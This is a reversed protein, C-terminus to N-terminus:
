ACGGRRASTRTRRASASFAPSGKALGQSTGPSCLQGQMLPLRSGAWSLVVLMVKTLCLLVLAVSIESWTGIIAGAVKSTTGGNDLIDVIGDLGEQAEETLKSVEQFFEKAIGGFFKAASKVGNWATKAANSIFTVAQMVGNWVKSDSVLEIHLIQLLFPRRILWSVQVLREKVFEGVAKVWGAFEWDADFDLSWDGQLWSPLNSQYHQILSTGSLDPIPPPPLDAIYPGLGM